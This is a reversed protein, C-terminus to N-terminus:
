GEGGHALALEVRLISGLSTTHTHVWLRTADRRAYLTSVVSEEDLGLLELQHGERVVLDVHVDVHGVRRGARRVSREVVVEVSAM